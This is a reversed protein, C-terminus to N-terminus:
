REVGAPLNRVRHRADEVIVVAGAQLAPICDALVAVLRETLRALRPDHLRFVIVGAKKGHTLASIEGFDLDHTVVIRGEAIAKAFIQGNPLSQLGEDRLHRADYGQDSLWRALRIDVCVDVLFQPPPM